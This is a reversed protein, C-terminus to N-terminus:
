VRRSTAVCNEVRPDDRIAAAFARHLSLLNGTRTLLGAGVLVAIAARAPDVGLVREYVSDPVLESPLLAGLHAAAVEDAGAVTDRVVSWLGVVPDEAALVATLADPRGSDRLRGLATTLLPRGDLRALAEDTIQGSGAGIQTRVEFPAIGPVDLVTFRGNPRGSSARPRRSSSTTGASPTLALCTTSYPARSSTPM